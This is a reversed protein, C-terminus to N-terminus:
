PGGLQALVQASQVSSVETPSWGLVKSLIVSLPVGLAGLKAAEDADQAPTRTEPSAYIAEADVQDVNAGTRLAVELAAVRAWCPAFLRLKGIVRSVLSAEAARIGDASPPQSSVIGLYHAPLCSVASAKEILNATLSQYGALDATGFEGFRVEPNEAQYLRLSDSTGFPNIPIPNGDADLVDLGTAPDKQYTLELGTVWRKPRSYFESTVVADLLIKNLADVIPILDQLESEGEVSNLIRRGWWNAFCVVPVAGIPNPLSETITWAAGPPPFASV